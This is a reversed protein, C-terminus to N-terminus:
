TVKEYNKQNVLYSQLNTISNKKGRKPTKVLMDIENAKDITRRTTM